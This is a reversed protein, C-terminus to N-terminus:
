LNRYLLWVVAVLVVVMVVKMPENYRNGMKAFRHAWMECNNGLLDFAGHENTNYMVLLAATPTGSIPTTSSGKMPYNRLFVSLPVISTGTISSHHAILPDPLLANIVVGYHNFLPNKRKTRWIIDGNTVSESVDVV